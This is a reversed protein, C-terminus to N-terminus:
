FTSYGFYGAEGGLAKAKPVAAQKTCTVYGINRHQIKVAVHLRRLVVRKAFPHGVKKHLTPGGNLVVADYVKPQALQLLGRRFGLFWVVAKLSSCLSHVFNAEADDAAAHCARQVCTGQAVNGVSFNGGKAVHIFGDVFLKGGFVADGEGGGIVM